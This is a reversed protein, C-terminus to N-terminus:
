SKIATIKFIETQVFNRFQVNIVAYIIKNSDYKDNETYEITLSKFNNIYRTIVNDQIDKKYQVLDDGDTFSYRIKPCIVRIAKIIEQVALVNHLWTLQTYETQSTYCSNMALINGEYYNCYNVRLTDIEAKQDVSPTIKPYFNLTGPIIEDTPLIVGYKIGCFPRARGDVFHKVFLRVLHYMVTVSIQKATFPDYVDYSNCYSACFRNAIFNNTSMYTRIDALSKIKLGMDRFYLCDERFTVLQEIANKVPAPYNADFIADIRNNDVDYIDDPNCWYECSGNFAEKVRVTYSPADIPYDGFSGNSGNELPIGYVNDLNTTINLYDIKDGYFDTGFLIDVKGFEDASISDRFPTTTDTSTSTNLLYSVNDVMKDFEDDFFTCRLQNSRMRITNQININVEKGSVNTVKVYPNLTFSLTELVKDNETIELFYKAYSIPYSDTNDRYIRIRIDSVGRGMPTIMFLPYHDANGVAKTSKFDKLFQDTFDDMDNGLITSYSKLQFELNVQNVKVKTYVVSGTSPDTISYIRNVTGSPLRAEWLNVKTNPDVYDTQSYTVNAVVGINALKSDNAVVRKITAYGGANILNAAQIAPQGHKKFSPNSGYLKEFQDGFVRTKWEEPGKDFSSVVMVIPRDLNDEVATSLTNIASQDDWLVTVNPSSM